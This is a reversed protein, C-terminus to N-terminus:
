PTFIAFYTTKLMDTNSVYCLRVQMVHEMHSQIIQNIHTKLTLYNGIKLALFKTKVPKQISGLVSHM